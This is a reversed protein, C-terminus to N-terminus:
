FKNANLGFNYLVVLTFVRTGARAETQVIYCGVRAGHCYKSISSTGQSCTKNDNQCLVQGSPLFHRVLARYKYTCVAFIEIAM